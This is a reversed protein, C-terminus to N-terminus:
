LFVCLECVSLWATRNASFIFRRIRQRARQLLSVLAADPAGETETQRKMGAILPQLTPGLAQQAKSQYKTMYFDAVNASWMANALTTLLKMAGAIM